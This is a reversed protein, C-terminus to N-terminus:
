FNWLSARQPSRVSGVGGGGVQWSLVKCLSTAFTPIPYGGDASGGPTDSARGAVWAQGKRGVMVKVAVGSCM